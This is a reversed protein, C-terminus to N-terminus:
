ETLAQYVLSNILPRYRMARQFSPVQVMFVVALDEMPDAWWLTGWAGNWHFDGASGMITSVRERVAVTLGFGYGDSSPDLEAIRNAIHPTMRNTRMAEVTKRGLIRTEGLVGGGLLMQAFRLYDLATSALGGGGCEFRLAQARDPVSQAEGTDPDRPLPRALRAVKDPPVQFSTDAMGLPRFLRQELFAGLGQGSIAEVALGIVDISLGYNWVTGPQYLLPATALQELFTAADLTAGAVNSSAPYLSHVATTGLGGYPLGSTHRLLDQITISREAPVTEIPGQGALAGENLVAVRRSGLQPLFREIPDALGLRGEEWLLLAAVGAVPKTMSAIAFVADRPMPASRDPGLHGVAEHFVLHQRRAVAVVAGPFQGAEIEENLATVIRGLRMSSMGVAEPDARPLPGSAPSDAAKQNATTETM